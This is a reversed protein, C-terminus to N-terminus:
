TDIESIVNVISCNVASLLSVKSGAVYVKHVVGGHNVFEQMVLGGEMRLDKLGDLALVLVMAHASALGCATSSKM